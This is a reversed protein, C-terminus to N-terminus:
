NAVSESSMLKEGNQSLWRKAETARPCLGQVILWFRTSHDSVKLHTLEHAVVYQLVFSPALILRWNFSLNRRSSCNGWKTRQGRIFVNQPVCRLQRTFESLQQAIEMRARRRLWYELSKAPSVGSNGKLVLLREGDFSVKNKRRQTCSTVEVLTPSGRFLIQSTPRVSGAVRISRVRGLQGVIWKQNARLFAKVHAVPRESPHIVDIGQPGIRLRLKRATRSVVLRYTVRQGGLTVTHMSSLARSSKNHMSTQLNKSLQTSSHLIRM